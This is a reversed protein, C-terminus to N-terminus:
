FGDLRASLTQCFIHSALPSFGSAIRAVKTSIKRKLNRPSRSIREIFSFPTLDIEVLNHVLVTVREFIIEFIDPFVDLLEEGCAFFVPCRYDIPYNEVSIHFLVIEEEM